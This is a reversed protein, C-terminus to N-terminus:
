RPVPAPQGPQLAPPPTPQTPQNTTQPSPQYVFQWDSYAAMKDTWGLQAPFNAQKIPTGPALSYIGMIGGEPALVFGWKDTNTLPDRYPHRLYRRIALQRDDLILANITPPYQKAGGPSSEYYQRIARIYQQGVFILEREKERQQAQHWLPAIATLAIGMVAFVM